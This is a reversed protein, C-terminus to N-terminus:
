PKAAEPEERDLSTLVLVEELRGFDVSPKLEAQQFLGTPAPEVREVTGIRLGKPFVGGYGSTIVLDGAHVEDRRELYDLRALAEGRGRVVAKARTNQVLADVASRHDVVLLVRSAFDGVDTVKGVVGSETVVALNRHIGDRSGRNILLTRSEAALDEGIVKAAVSPFGAREKFGLLRRMRENAKSEEVSRLQEAKLGEITARLVRNEEELDAVRRFGRTFGRISGQVWRTAELVPTSVLLVAREWLNLSARGQLAVTLSSLGLGFALLAVVLFRRRRLFDLAM